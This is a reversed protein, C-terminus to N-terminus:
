YGTGFDDIALRVGLESLRSVVVNARAPDAMITTETIELELSEAPVNWKALLAAVQEALGLDLLSRASLNVAVSLPLGEQRWASCQELATDLVYTTLPKILNTHQALPIFENPPLLGREPHQWRVLAEVGSV